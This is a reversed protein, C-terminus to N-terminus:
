GLVVLPARLLLYVPCEIFGVAGAPESFAHFHVDKRRADMIWSGLDVCRIVFSSLWKGKTAEWGYWEKCPDERRLFSHLM